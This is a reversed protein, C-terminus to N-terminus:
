NQLMFINLLKLSTWYHLFIPNCCNQMLFQIYDWFNHYILNLLMRVLKIRLPILGMGFLVFSEIHDKSASKRFIYGYRTVLTSIIPLEINIMDKRISRTARNQFIMFKNSYNNSRKLLNTQKIQRMKLISHSVLNCSPYHQMYPHWHNIGFVFKLHVIDQLQTFHRTNAINSM